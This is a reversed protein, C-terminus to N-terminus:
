LLFCIQAAEVVQDVRPKVTALLEDYNAVVRELDAPDSDHVPDVAGLCGGFPRVLPRASRGRRPHGEVSDPSGAPWRGHRVPTTNGGAGLICNRGTREHL